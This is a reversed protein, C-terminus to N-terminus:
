ARGAARELVAAHARAAESWDQVARSGAIRTRDWGRELARALAAALAEPTRERVLLGTVGDEVLDPVGGVATAVVPLGCALAELVVNPCGESASALCLVDAAAYRAPLAEPPVAGPLTVVGGLGLRAVEGELAGREPGEGVVVVRLPRVGDGPLAAAARVLLSLGKVAALRGVALVVRAEEPWGLARRAAARDEQAFLSQDVGNPIVAVKSPDAGLAEAERALAASMAVVASADALVRRIIGRRRPLRALVNIDSGRLSIVYPKGLARALLRAAAGDPYAYHADVLDYRGLDALGRLQGLAQRFLLEGDWHKLLGPVVAFRPHFTRLGGAHDRRPVRLAFRPTELVNVPAAVDVDCFRAVRELRNRVFIGHLPRARNPFLTTFALVRLRSATM